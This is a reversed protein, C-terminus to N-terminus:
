QSMQKRYSQKTTMDAVRKKERNTNGKKVLQTSYLMKTMHMSFITWQLRAAHFTEKIGM